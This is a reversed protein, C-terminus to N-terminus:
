IYMYTYIYVYTYMPEECSLVGPRSIRPSGKTQTFSAGQLTLIPGTRAGSNGSEEGRQPPCLRALTGACILYLAAFVVVLLCM